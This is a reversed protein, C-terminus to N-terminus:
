SGDEADESHPRGADITVIVKGGSVTITQKSEEVFGAYRALLELAAIKSHFKVELGDKGNKVSGVVAGFKKLQKVDIDGFDNLIETTDAFGIQELENRIRLKLDEVPRKLIEASLESIRKKVDVFTM